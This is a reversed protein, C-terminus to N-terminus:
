VRALFFSPFFVHGFDVLGSRSGGAGTAQLLELRPVQLLFLLVNLHSPSSFNSQAELSVM